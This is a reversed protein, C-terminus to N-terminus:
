EAHEGILRVVGISEDSGFEVSDGDGIFVPLRDNAVSDASLGAAEESGRLVLVVFELPDDGERPFLEPVIDIGMGTGALPQFAVRGRGRGLLKHHGVHFVGGGHGGVLLLGDQARPCLKELAPEALTVEDLVEVLMKDVMAREGGIVVKFPEISPVEAFQFDGQLEKVLKVVALATPAHLQASAPPEGIGVVAVEIGGHDVDDGGVQGGDAGGHTVAEDFFGLGIYRRSLRLEFTKLRGSMLGVDFPTGMDFFNVLAARAERPSAM